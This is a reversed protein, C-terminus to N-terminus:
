APKTLSAELDVSHFFYRTLACVWLGTSSARPLASAKLFNLSSPRFMQTCSAAIRNQLPFWQLQGRHGAFAASRRNGGSPPPQPGPKQPATPDTFVLRRSRVDTCFAKSKVSPRSWVNSEASFLLVFSHCAIRFQRLRVMRSRSRVSHSGFCANRVPMCYIMSHQHKQAVMHPSLRHFNCRSKM